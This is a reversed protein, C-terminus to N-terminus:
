FPSPLRDIPVEIVVTTDADLAEALAAKLDGAGPLRVGAAGFAEAYRAFDPNRLLTGIERGGFKERQDRNSNGYAGDNFVLVVVNIDHQVATALESGTFLFGGDGCVAVVPVDPRAVRAGLATPFGFGLTGMYSSTLYTRPRHVPFRMHCMYGVTTVDVVVVAEDPITERLTEVIATQPGVASLEAEIRRRMALTEGTRSPRRPGTRDLEDRLAELTLRADGVVGVDVAAQRGIEAPDVDVQVVRQSRIGSGSLRTGVALVVDADDIVPQVRRNSWATGVSLPNRDDVAGKGERTTLVPAQLLEAVATLADTAGAAVVGGGAWVLPRAAASLVSAARAVTGPDPVTTVEGAPPLLAVDAQEGLAEPPMEIEVPRPRGSRLHRMAEHVTAPIDSASLARAQWKTVPKVIDLQDDIEHLLGFGRGIGGRNVQGAVLLVPSSASYATALGSAANYVGVGPVVMATGVRGGARAYGDAMYTTGQEHRTTIYRISPEHYLGDLGHMLQDGPLGFVCEVGEAALQGALARGGTMEPM